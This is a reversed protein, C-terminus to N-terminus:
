IFNPQNLMEWELLSRCVIELDKALTSAPNGEHYGHIAHCGLDITVPEQNEFNSAPFTRTDARGGIRDRAELILVRHGLSTLYKAAVLGSFGAGVIVVSPAVPLLGPQQAQVNSMVELGLVLSSNAIPSDLRDRNQGVLCM